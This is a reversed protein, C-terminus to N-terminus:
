PTQDNPPPRDHFLGFFPFPSKRPLMSPYLSYVSLHAPRFVRGDTPPIRPSGIAAPRRM